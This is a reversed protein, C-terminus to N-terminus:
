VLIRSYSCKSGKHQVCKTSVLVFCLYFHFPTVAQAGPVRWIRTERSRPIQGLALLLPLMDIVLTLFPDSLTKCTSIWAVVDKIPLYIVIHVLLEPSASEWTSVYDDM